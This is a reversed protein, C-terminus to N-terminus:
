THVSFYFFVYCHKTIELWNMAADYFFSLSFVSGYFRALIMKGCKERFFGIETNAERKTKCWRTIFVFQKIPRYHFNHKEAGVICGANEVFDILSNKAQVNNKRLSRYKTNCIFVDRFLCIRQWLKNIQIKMQNQNKEFLKKKNSITSVKVKKEDVRVEFRSSCFFIIIQNKNM